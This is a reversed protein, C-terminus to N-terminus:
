LMGVWDAQRLLTEHFARHARADDIAKHPISDKPMEMGFADAICQIEQMRRPISEPMLGWANRWLNHTRWADDIGYYGYMKVPTDPGDLAAWTALDAAIQRAPVVLHHDPHTHDWRFNRPMAGTTPAFLAYTNLDVPHDWTVYTVKGDPGHLDYRIPLHPVVQKLMFEASPTGTSLYPLDADANIYYFDRRANDTVGLALLGTSNGIEPFFEGDPYIRRVEDPHPPRNPM